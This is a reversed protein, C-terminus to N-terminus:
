LCDRFFIANMFVKSTGFWYSRFNMDDVFYIVNGNKYPKAFVAPADKVLKRNHRSMYGSVLPDSMYHLPSVYPDDDKKFVLNNNKIVMIEDQDLGWGLPHTKDLGCRLIAGKITRGARDETKNAFTGYLTSDNKIATSRPKINMVGASSLLEHAKGTAILTGGDAVWNKLADRSDATLSPMGNAVIIVNYPALKKPTLVNSEILVPCMQFRYDLLFWAEGSDPVGQTRGVLIAVEPKTIPRFLPSGLDLDSMLSTTVSYIDTGCEEALGSVLRFIEDSDLPQNSSTVLITGYGMTKEVDGSHFTFPRSMAQLYLGKKQLENIIKPAYFEKSEFIYGVDSKGGIVKGPMFSVDTVKEGMLGAVSKLPAYRLNFAHPFTWASIDYFTSDTFETFDEMVAKVMVSNKQEVPIVYSDEKDFSEGGASIDHSLRYIDIRHRKMNELFHFEVSRSGRSDFVYGKVGERAANRRSEKYFDRQYEILRSRMDVAAVLTAYSALAQNRVTWAFSRPGNVTQRLHGRSTGQEYLLCVAGHIDGYAAGKGYYYDDYGEKSYYVTGIKDLEKAVVSSIDSTLDQNLQSTLKNTRKPHGPSFYYPRASGQEHLDVVVNPMWDFFVEVGNIGEPHQMMLWDRNCDAWYHNTRSSPWPETFERSNLDSVDTLSRSTNVWSAFRNIGDPNAGPTMVVVLKDLMKDIEPGEAAALFYALPLTSNVGSPENGHISYILNVVVPDNEIDVEGDDSVALHREKINDINKMNAASSFIVEIFPRHQYTRGMEKVAVRDSVRALTEMYNVVQAWDVHQRGVQFGLVSEPTPITPSLTYDGSPLFYDLGFGYKANRPQALTFPIIFVTILLTLILKKM